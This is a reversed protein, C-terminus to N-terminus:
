APFTLKFGDGRKRPGSAYPLRFQDTGNGPSVADLRDLEDFFTRMKRNQEKLREAMLDHESM